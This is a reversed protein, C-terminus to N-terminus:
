RMWSGEQAHRQARALAAFDNPDVYTKAKTVKAERRMMVGYRIASILDDMEKVIKGDKRHYLRVEEFVASLHSFVKFRGELMMDLILM